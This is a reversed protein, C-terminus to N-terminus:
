SAQGLDGCGFHSGQRPQGGPHEPLARRQTHQLLRHPGRQGGGARPQQFCDQGTTIIPIGARVDLAGAAVPREEGAAPRRGLAM